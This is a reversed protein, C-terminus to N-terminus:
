DKFLSHVRGELSCLQPPRGCCARCEASVCLYCSDSGVVQSGQGGVGEWQGEGSTYLPPVPLGSM